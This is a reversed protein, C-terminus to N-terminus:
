GLIINLANWECKYYHKDINNWECCIRLAIRPLHMIKFFISELVIGQYFEKWKLYILSWFCNFAYYYPLLLLIILMFAQLKMIRSNEEYINFKFSVLNSVPNTEDLDIKNIGHPKTALIGTEWGLPEPEIEPIPYTTHKRKIITSLTPISTRTPVFGVHFTPFYFILFYVHTSKRARKRRIIRHINLFYFCQLLNLHIFGSRTAGEFNKKFQRM